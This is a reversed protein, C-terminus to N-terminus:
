MIGSGLIGCGLPIESLPVFNEFLEAFAPKDATVWSM